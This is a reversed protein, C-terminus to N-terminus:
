VLIDLMELQFIEHRDLLFRFYYYTKPIYSILRKLMNKSKCGAYYKIYKLTVRYKKIWPLLECIVPIKKNKILVKYSDMNKKLFSKLNKEANGDPLNVLDIMDWILKYNSFYPYLMSKFNFLAFNRFHKAIQEPLLENIAKEWSEMPDYERKQKFFDAATKLPILTSEPYEMINLIIGDSNDLIEPDRHKYPGLHMEWKMVMDNVPYNDWYLPRHGTNQIFYETDPASLVQSCVERGTWILLMDDPFNKCFEKIYVSDGRGHYQTPCCLFMIDTDISKLKQYCNLLFINQAEELSKFIKKDQSHIIKLHTIIVKM